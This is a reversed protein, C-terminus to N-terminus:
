PSPQQALDRAEALIRDLDQRNFYQGRLFVAEIMQANRIDELPNGRVLVLSASKGVSVSGLRKGLGMFQAPVLSASRLVDVAPIGAEQWTVMEEHVSFGPLIGPCMLDTGVMLPVGAQNMGKVMQAWNKWFLDPFPSQRAWQSKWISILNPSLYESGPLNKDVLSDVEPWNKFTVVTPDVTVGSKRLRQYFDQLAQPDVEGLRLLYDSDAGFGHFTLNIPEGLLKAIVKEFGFWHEISKQGAMAAEELYISDPVHGVVKLGLKQAEDVIALFVEKDLTTYVKIMDAGARAQKQVAERAQGPTTVGISISPIVPPDGDLIAGTAVMEPGLMKGQNLEDRLKLIYENPMGMDRVLLVGNAIMLRGFVPAELYHVHADVLGPMLYMGKGDITVAGAPIATKAQGEIRDIRDGVVIVTQGPVARGKEVDIVAVDSIAYITAPAATTPATAAPPKTPVPSAVAIPSNTSVTTATISVQTLAETAPAALPTCAVVILLLVVLGPVTKPLIHM